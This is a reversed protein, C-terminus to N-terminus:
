RWISWRTDRFDRAPHMSEWCMKSQWVSFQSWRVVRWVLMSAQCTWEPLLWCSLDPGGRQWSWGPLWLSALPRGQYLPRWGAGGSAQAGQMGTRQLHANGTEVGGAQVQDEEEEQDQVVFRFNHQRCPRLRFCLRGAPHVRPRPQLRRGSQGSRTPCSWGSCQCGRNTSVNPRWRRRWGRQIKQAQGSVNNISRCPVVRNFSFVLPTASLLYLLSKTPKVPFKNVVKENLLHPKTIFTGRSKVNCEHNCLQCRLRCRTLTQLWAIKACTLVLVHSRLGEPHGHLRPHYPSARLTPGSPTEGVIQNDLQRTTPNDTLRHRGRRSINNIVTATATASTTSTRTLSGGGWPGRSGSPCSPDEPSAINPRGSRGPCSSWRPTTSRSAGQCLPHAGDATLSFIM